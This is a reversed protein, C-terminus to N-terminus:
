DARVESPAWSWYPAVGDVGRTGSAGQSAVTLWSGDGARM